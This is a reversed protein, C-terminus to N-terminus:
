PLPNLNMSSTAVPLFAAKVKPLDFTQENLKEFTNKKEEEEKKLDLQSLCAAKVM